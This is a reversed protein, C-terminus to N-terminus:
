VNYDDLINSPTDDFWSIGEFMERIFPSCEININNKVLKLTDLTHIPPYPPGYYNPQGFLINQVRVTINARGSITIEYNNDAGDYGLPDSFLSHYAIVKSTDRFPIEVSQNPNADFHSIGIGNSVDLLPFSNSTPAVMTRAWKINGNEDKAVVNISMAISGDLHTVYGGLPNTYKIKPITTFRGYWSPYITQALSAKLPLLENDRILSINVTPSIWLDSTWTAYSWPDINTMVGNIRRRSKYNVKVETNPNDKFTFTPIIFHTFPGYLSWIGDYPKGTTGGVKPRM